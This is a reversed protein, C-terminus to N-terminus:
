FSYYSNLTQMAANLQQFQHTDGGRDPHYDFALKKFRKKIENQHVPESLGLVLLAQQKKSSVQNYVLYKKWFSRLMNQVDGKSTKLLNTWDLYYEALDDAYGLAQNHPTNVMLRIDLCSISLHERNEQSLMNKLSYLVHFLVFHSEFLKKEGSRMGEEFEPYGMTKLEKILDYESLGQPNKRLIELIPAFLISNSFRSAM